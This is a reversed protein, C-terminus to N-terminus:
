TSNTSSNGIVTVPLIWFNMMRSATSAFSPSFAAFVAHCLQGGASKLDTMGPIFAIANVRLHASKRAEFYSPGTQPRNM